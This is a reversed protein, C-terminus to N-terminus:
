VVYDAKSPKVGCSACKMLFYIKFASLCFPHNIIEFKTPAHFSASICGAGRWLFLFKSRRWPFSVMTRRMIHTQSKSFPDTLERHSNCSWIHAYGQQMPRVWFIKDVHYNVDGLLAVADNQDFDYYLVSIFANTGDSLCSKFTNQVNAFSSFM